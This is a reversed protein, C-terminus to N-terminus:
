MLDSFGSAAEILGSGSEMQMFFMAVNFVVEVIKLFVMFAKQFSNKTNQDATKPNSLQPVIASNRIKSLTREFEQLSEQRDRQHRSPNYPDYQFDCCVIPIDGFVSRITARNAAAWNQDTSHTVILVFNKEAGAFTSKFLSFLKVHEETSLRGQQIVYGIYHYGQKGNNLAETLQSLAKGSGQKGSNELEGLGMTDCVTWGRGQQISVKVTVGTASDNVGFVNSQHLDGQVLMSGISSKGAGSRGVLLIRSNSTSDRLM